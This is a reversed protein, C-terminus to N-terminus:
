RRKVIVFYVHKDAELGETVRVCIFEADKGILCAGDGARGYFGKLAVRVCVRDLILHKTIATGNKHEKNAKCAIRVIAAM